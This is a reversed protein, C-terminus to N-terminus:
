IKYHTGISDRNISSEVMKLILKEESSREKKYLEEKLKKLDETKKVPGLTEFVISRLNEDINSEGVERLNLSISKKSEKIRLATNKGAIEGFILAEPIAFGGIRNSGHLGYTTEGVAYVSEHNTEAKDNIKIGGISFHFAPHIEFKQVDKLTKNTFVWGFENEKKYEEFFEESIESIDMYIKSKELQNYFERTMEPFRPHHQNKRLANRIEDSLFENGQEDVFKANQLLEGSVLAKPLKEDVALFPHFMNFELGEIELGGELAFALINPTSKPISGTSYEYINCLGGSAIIIKDAIIKMDQNNVRAKVGRINKTEDLLFNIVDGDMIKGGLRLYEKEFIDLVRNGRITPVKGLNSDRLPVKLENLIEIARNYNEVFTNLIDKDSLQNGKSWIKEKINEKKDEIINWPSVASNSGKGGIIVCNNDDGKESLNKMFSVGSSLGGAGRGIILCKTQMFYIIKVKKYFKEFINAKKFLLGLSM